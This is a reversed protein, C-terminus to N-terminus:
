LFPKVAICRCFNINLSQLLKDFYDGLGSLLLSMKTNNYRFYGFM